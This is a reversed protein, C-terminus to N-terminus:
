VVARVIKAPFIQEYFSLGSAMSYIHERGHRYSRKDHLVSSFLLQFDNEPLDNHVVNISAPKPILSRVEDIIAAVPAFDNCGPGSGYVCMCIPGQERDLCQKVCEARFAAHIYKVSAHSSSQQPVSNSSYEADMTHAADMVGASRKM